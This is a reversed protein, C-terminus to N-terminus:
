SSQGNADYNMVVPCYVTCYEGKQTALRDALDSEDVNKSRLVRILSRWTTGKDGAKDKGHLWASLTAFLCMDTRDKHNENIDQLTQYSLGLAIGINRWKRKASLVERFM